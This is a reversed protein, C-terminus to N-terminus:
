PSTHAKVYRFKGCIPYLAQSKERIQAIGKSKYPTAAQLRRSGLSQHHPFLGIPAPGGIVCIFLCMYIGILLSIQFM